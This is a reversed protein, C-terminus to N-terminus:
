RDRRDDQHTCQDISFRIEEGDGKDASHIHIRRYEADAQVFVVVGIPTYALVTHEADIDGTGTLHDWGVPAAHMAPPIGVLTTDEGREKTGKFVGGHYDITRDGTGASAESFGTFEGHIGDYKGQDLFHMHIFGQQAGIPRYVAQLGVREEKAAELVGVTRQSRNDSLSPFASGVVNRLSLCAMIGKWESRKATTRSPWNHSKHSFPM